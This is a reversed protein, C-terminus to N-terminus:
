QHALLWSDRGLKASSASIGSVQSQGRHPSGAPRSRSVGGDAGMEAPLAASRVMGVVMLPAVEGAARAVALIMGTLVGPM